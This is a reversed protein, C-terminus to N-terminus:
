CKHRLNLKLNEIVDDINRAVFAIGGHANINQIFKEQHPSLKGRETKVEIAMFRGDYIGVIDPVGPTSGLGQWVKWHFIGFQKLLSRISHTIEKELIRPKVRWRRSVFDTKTTLAFRMTNASQKRTSSAIRYRNLPRRSM